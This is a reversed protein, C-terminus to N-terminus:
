LGMDLFYACKNKNATKKLADNQHAYLKVAM